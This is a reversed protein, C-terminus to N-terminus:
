EAQERCVLQAGAKVPDISIAGTKSTQGTMQLSDRGLVKEAFTWPAYPMEIMTIAVSSRFANYRLDIFRDQDIRYLSTHKVPYLPKLSVVDTGRADVVHCQAIPMALADASWAFAVLFFIRGFM